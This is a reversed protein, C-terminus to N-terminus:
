SLGKYKYYASCAGEQSVMCPGAPNDPTCKKGFLACDLPARAGKLVAGCICGAAEKARPVTLAFIKGADFGSYRGRIKLGSKEIEGIGRWASGTKEFVEKIAAQARKNGGPSVIRSYQIELRPRAQKLLMLIGQLIDIPEFGAVVCRKGYSGALFAYPGTGIIASVHAPLIFGDINLDKDKVLAGLAEPMTKHACLVSYNRIRGKRAEIISAAVTPATTEFGVGLFVVRRDPLRRALGLADTTSYVVRIDRGKAKERSLSSATGPVRMMDGFTAVTVGKINALKVAKDIFENPTVCVPCGPGSLLIVEEPLMARIGFRFISMTHTGCVEMFRYARGSCAAAKRIKAALKRALKRDRFEDIYKM